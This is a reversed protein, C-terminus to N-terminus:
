SDPMCTIRGAWQLRSFLIVAKISSMLSIFFFLPMPRSIRGAMPPWQRGHMCPVLTLQVRFVLHLYQTQTKLKLGHKRLCGFTQVSFAIAFKMSEQRQQSTVKLIHNVIELTTSHIKINHQPIASLALTIKKKEPPM